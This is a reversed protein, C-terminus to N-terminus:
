FCTGGELRDAKHHSLFPDRVRRTLKFIRTSGTSTKFLNGRINTLKKKRVSTKPMDAKHKSRTEEYYLIRLQTCSANAFRWCGEQVVNNGYWDHGSATPAAKQVM